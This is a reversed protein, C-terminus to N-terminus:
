IVGMSHLLAAVSVLLAAVGAGAVYRYVIGMGSLKDFTEQQKTLRAELDSITQHMESNNVASVRNDAYTTKIDQIFTDMKAAIAKVEAEVAEFKTERMEKMHRQEQELLRIEIALDAVAKTNESIAPLLDGVKIELSEVRMELREVRHEISVWSGPKTKVTEHITSEAIPEGMDVCEEAEMM